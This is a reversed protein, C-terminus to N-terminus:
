RPYGVIMDHWTRRADSPFPDSGFVNVVIIAEMIGGEAIATGASDLQFLLRDGQREIWFMTLMTVM